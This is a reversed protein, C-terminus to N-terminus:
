EDSPNEHVRIATIKTPHDRIAADATQGSTAAMEPKSSRALRGATYGVRSGSLGNSPNLAVMRAQRPPIALTARATQRRATDERGVKLRRHRCTIPMDTLWVPREAM